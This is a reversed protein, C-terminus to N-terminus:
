LVTNFREVLQPMLIDVVEQRVSKVRKENEKPSKYKNGFKTGNKRM